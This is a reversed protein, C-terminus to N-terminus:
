WGWEIPTKEAKHPRRILEQLNAFSPEGIDVSDFEQEGQVEERRFSLRGNTWLRAAAFGAPMLEELTVGADNRCVHRCHDFAMEAAAPQTALARRRSSKPNNKATWDLDRQDYEDSMTTLFPHTYIRHIAADDPSPAWRGTIPDPYETNDDFYRLRVASIPKFFLLQQLKISNNVIAQWQKCTRVVISLIDYM